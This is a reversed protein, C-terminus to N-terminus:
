TLREPELSEILGEFEHPEPSAPLDGGDRHAILFHQAQVLMPWDKPETLYFPSFNALKSGMRLADINKLYNCPNAERTALDHIMAVRDLYSLRWDKDLMTSAHTYSINIPPDNDFDPARDLYEGEGKYWRSCRQVYNALSPEGQYVREPKKGTREHLEQLCEDVSGCFPELYPANATWKIVHTGRSQLTVPTRMIRGSVGTRKGESEWHFDRDAQGFQISPKLIAVHMMGGIEADAPIQPYERTLLGRDRFWELAHLYHQTQFEERVTSLRILPPAATTKADVIWLKNTKRNLLLLDFQAVQRTKPFREDIWTLRLEAGLKVFNDSLIDLASDKNLCPLNEFADYWASAYAQDIRENQVADARATETIRLDRCIQNIEAIRSECQRRFIQWRDDRDYLAFLTHFYSGRSLAESYSLAPTLGLRRRLYYGFPDSLASSYDSSRISPVRAILGETELYMRASRGHDTPLPTPTTEPPM